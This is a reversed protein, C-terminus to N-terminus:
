ELQAACAEVVSQAAELLNFDFMEINIDNGDYGNLSTYIDNLEVAIKVLRKAADIPSVGKHKKVKVKSKAM